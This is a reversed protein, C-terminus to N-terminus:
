CFASQEVLNGLVDHHAFVLSHPPPVAGDTVVLLVELLLHVGSAGDLRLSEVTNTFQM